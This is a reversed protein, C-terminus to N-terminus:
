RAAVRKLGRGGQEVSFVRPRLRRVSAQAPVPRAEGPALRTKPPPLLRPGLLQGAAPPLLPRLPGAPVGPLARGRARGRGRGRGGAAKEGDSGAGRPAALRRGLAALRPRLASGAGGAEAM